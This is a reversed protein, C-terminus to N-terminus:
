HTLSHTHAAAASSVLRTAQIYAKNALHLDDAAGSVNLYACLHSAGLGSWSRAASPDMRVSEKALSVSELLMAESLGAAGSLNRLLMSLHCLSAANREFELAGLFTHRATELEGREWFCEGLCNWADILQPDLKVAGSLLREAAASARGEETCALAKGRLYWLRAQVGRTESNGEYEAEAKEVEALAAASGAALASRREEPSVAYLTDHQAYAADVQAQAVVLAAM